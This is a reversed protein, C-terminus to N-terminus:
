FQANLYVKRAQYSLYYYLYSKKEELIGHHAILIYMYLQTFLHFLKDCDLIYQIIYKKMYILHIFYVITSVNM